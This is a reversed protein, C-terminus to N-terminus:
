LVHSKINNILFYHNRKFIKIFNKGESSKLFEDMAYYAGYLFPTNVPDECMIIGNKSIKKSIKKLSHLTAEYLDVDINALSIKNIESPLDDKCINNTVLKYNDFESFMMNLLEKTKKEEDLFHSEHWIIDSSYKSEQYNFGEFTDLLFIKKKSNILKFYNLATLASGGEFVGIEVYDGDVNKTLEIGECINEHTQLSALYEGSIITKKNFTNKVAKMCNSNIFRYSTANSYDYNLKKDQIDVSSFFGKNEIIKKLYPIANDDSSFVIFFFSKKIQNLEFKELSSILLIKNKKFFNNNINIKLDTLIYIKDFKKTVGSNNINRIILNTIDNDFRLDINQIYYNRSNKKNLIIKTFSKLILNQFIENSLFFNNYIKKFFKFIM